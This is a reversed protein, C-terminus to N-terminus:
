DVLQRQAAARNPNPGLWGQDLQNETCPGWESSLQVCSQKWIAWRSRSARHYFKSSSFCSIKNLISLLFGRKMLLKFVMIVLFYFYFALLVLHSSSFQLLNWFSVFRPSFSSTVPIPLFFHRASRATFCLITSLSLQFIPVQMLHSFVQVTSSAGCLCLFVARKLQTAPHKCPIVKMGTRPWKGTCFVVPLQALDVNEQRHWTVATHSKMEFQKHYGWNM